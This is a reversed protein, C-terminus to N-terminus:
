DGSVDGAFIRETGGPGEVRLNRERGPFVTLIDEQNDIVESLGWLFREALHFKKM